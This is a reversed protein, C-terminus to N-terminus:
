ESRYLYLTCEYLPYDHRVTVFPTLKKGMSLADQPSFHFNKELQHDVYTSLFNVAVGKRCISFMTELMRGVYEEHRPLKFTLAGSALVYDYVPDLPESLVDRCLFEADPFMKRGEAVLKESIDVGTYRVDAFKNQLFPYLEGFGCGLDCVWTGRLDAIDSLVKFRLDQSERTGWGISRIDRGLEDFRKNYFDAIRRVEFDSM